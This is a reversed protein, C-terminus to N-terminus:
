AAPLEIVMAAGGLDASEIRLQGGYLLVTEHVMALGLGQGEIHPALRKGRELVQEAVNSDIGPGDDEVCLHLHGSPKSHASVRIRSRCWKFANDLLNGFLEYLDGEDGYFMAGAELELQVAIPKDLRSKQLSNILRQVVPQIPVPRGPRVPGATAARQLHYDIIQQMRALQEDATRALEPDSHTQSKLIGRLVTLPTKLSHSVNGLADRYRALQQHASELLLNLNETLGSLERPYRGQLQEQRGAKIAALDREVRRLPRLGWRLVLTQALLLLLTAALLWGWLNRRYENIRTYYRDMRDAVFYTLPYVQKGTEWRVTYTFTYLTAGGDEQLQSFRGEGPPPFPPTPLEVGLLSPSQLSKRPTDIHQVRAYFGSGPQNLRSGPLTRSFYLSGDEEVETAALLAFMSSRLRDQLATEASERFARDLALGVLLVFGILILVSTLLLRAQLSLRNM